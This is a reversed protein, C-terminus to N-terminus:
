WRACLVSHSGPVMERGGENKGEKGLEGVEANIWCM